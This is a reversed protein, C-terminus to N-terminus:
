GITKPTPPYRYVEDTGMHTLIHEGRGESFVQEYVPKVHHRYPKAVTSGIMTAEALSVALGQMAMADAFSGFGARILEALLIVPIEVEFAELDLRQLDAVIQGKSRLRKLVASREFPVATTM